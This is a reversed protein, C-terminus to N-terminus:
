ATTDQGNLHQVETQVLVRNRESLGTFRFISAHMHLIVGKIAAAESVAEDFLLPPITTVLQYNPGSQIVALTGSQSNM